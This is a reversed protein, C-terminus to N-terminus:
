LCLLFVHVAIDHLLVILTARSTTAIVITADTAMYLQSPEAFRMEYLCGCYYDYEVYSYLVIRESTQLSDSM